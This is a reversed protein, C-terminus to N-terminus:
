KPTRQALLSLGGTKGIGDEEVSECVLVHDGSSCSLGRQFQSDFLLKGVIQQSAIAM